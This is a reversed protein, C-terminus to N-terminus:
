IFNPCESFAVFNLVIKWKIQCKSLLDFWTSSQELKTGKKPFSFKVVKSASLFSHVKVLKVKGFRDLSSLKIDFFIQIIKQNLFSRLKRSKTNLKM